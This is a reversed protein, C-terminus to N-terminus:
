AESPHFERDVDNTWSTQGIHTGAFILPNMLGARTGSALNASVDNTVGLVEVGRSPLRPAISIAGGAIRLMM